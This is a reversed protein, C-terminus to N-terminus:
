LSLLFPDKGVRKARGLNWAVMSKARGHRSRRGGDGGHSSALAPLCSVRCDLVLPLVPLQPRALPLRATEPKQQRRWYATSRGFLLSPRGILLAVECTSDDNNRHFCYLVKVLSEEVAVGGAGM